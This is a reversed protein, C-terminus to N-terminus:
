MFQSASYCHLANLHFHRYSIINSKISAIVLSSSNTHAKWQLHVAHIDKLIPFLCSCFGKLSGLHIIICSISLCLCLWSHMLFPKRQIIHLPSFENKSGPYFGLDSKDSTFIICETEWGHAILSLDWLFELLWSIIILWCLFWDINVYIIQMNLKWYCM